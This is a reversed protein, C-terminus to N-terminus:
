FKENEIRLIFPHYTGLILLQFITKVFDEADIDANHDILFEV